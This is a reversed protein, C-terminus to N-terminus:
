QPSARSRRAADLGVLLMIVWLGFACMFWPQWMGWTFSALVVASVFSAYVYPQDDEPLRAIARLGMVGTLMLLVAGIAGLEYWTQMFINHSHRGTRQPYTDGPRTIATPAAEEDLPKTSAIGIGLLPSEKMKEATVSWLVIRNRATQPLWRAQHLGAQHSYAAIPVVLLTVVLWGALVLARLLPAAVLMGAFVVCSAVLAIMSTEHESTFIALASLVLLAAASGRAAGPTLRSRLLLFGPWLMLILVALNRNLTYSAFQEVWGMAVVIHKPAPRLFPALSVILRRIPQGLPTEIALFVIGAAIALALALHLRRAGDEEIKPLAVRVAAALCAILAFLGAREFAELPDVSWTANVLLYLWLVGLALMVPHRAIAALAARGPLAPVVLAGGLLLLLVPTARPSILAILVSALVLAAVAHRSERPALAPRALSDNQM